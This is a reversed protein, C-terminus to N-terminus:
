SVIVTLCSPFNSAITSYTLQNLPLHNAVLGVQKGSGPIYMGNEMSCLWNCFSVVAELHTARSLVPLNPACSRDCDWHKFPYTVVSFTFRSTYVLHLGTVKDPSCEAYFGVLREPVGCSAVHKPKCSASHCMPFQVPRLIHCSWRGFGVWWKEASWRRRLMTEDLLNHGTAFNPIEDWPKDITIM